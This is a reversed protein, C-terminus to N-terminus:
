RQFTGMWQAQALIHGRIQKQLAAANLGPPLRPDLDIAYLTFYYRHAKGAPPCPGSYGTRGFSSTGQTGIGAVEASSAVKEPLGTLAPSMNYLVWHYFTGSPADPDETILALSRARSPIGSWTLIPSFNDGLCSFKKPIPQGNEFAPSSIYMAQETSKNNAQLSPTADQVTAVSFTPEVESSSGPLNAGTPSADASACSALLFLFLTFTPLFRM